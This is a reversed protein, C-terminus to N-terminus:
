LNSDNVSQEIIITTDKKEYIKAAEMSYLGEEIDKLQGLVNQILRMQHSRKWVAGLYNAIDTAKIIPGLGSKELQEKVTIVTERIVGFDSSWESM